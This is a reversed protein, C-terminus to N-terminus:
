PRTHSQFFNVTIETLALKTLLREWVEILPCKNCLGLLLFLESHLSKRIHCNHVKDAQCRGWGGSPMEVATSILLAKNIKYKVRCM